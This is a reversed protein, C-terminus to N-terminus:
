VNLDFCSWQLETQSSNIQSTLEQRERKALDEKSHVSETGRWNRKSFEPGGARTTM